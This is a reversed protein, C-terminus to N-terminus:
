YEISSPIELTLALKPQLHIALNFAFWFVLDGFDLSFEFKSFFIAKETKKSNLLQVM